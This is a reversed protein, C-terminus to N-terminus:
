YRRPEVKPPIGKHFKQVELAGGAGFLFLWFVGNIKELHHAFEFLKEIKVTIKHPKM